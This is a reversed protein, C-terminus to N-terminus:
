QLKLSWTLARWNKIRKKFKWNTSTWKRRCCRYFKANIYINKLNCLGSVAVSNQVQQLEVDKQQLAATTNKIQQELASIKDVENRIELDVNKRLENNENVLTNCREGLENIELELQNKLNNFDNEVTELHLKWTEAIVDGRSICEEEWKKNLEEVTTELNLQYSKQSHEANEKLGTLELTQQEILSNLNDVKSKLAENETRLSEIESVDPQPSQKLSSALESNERKLKEVVEVYNAVEDQLKIIQSNDITNVDEFFSSASVTKQQNLQDYLAKKENELKRLNETLQHIENQLKASDPQSPNDFFSAASGFLLSESSKHQQVTANLRANESELRQLKENLIIIENQLELNATPPASNEFFSSANGFSLHENTTQNGLREILSKNENDLANLKENLDAIENKLAMVESQDTKPVDFFSAASQLMTTPKNQSLALELNQIQQNLSHNQAQLERNSQDMGDLKKKLDLVADADEVTREQLNNYDKQLKENLEEMYRIREELDAKEQEMIAITSSLTSQQQLEESAVDARSRLEVLERTLNEYNAEIHMFRTQLDSKLQMEEEYRRTVEGIEARLNNADEQLENRENILRNYEELPKSTEKLIELQQELDSNQKLLLSYEDVRISSEQSEKLSAELAKYQDLSVLSEKLRKIENELQIKQAVVELFEEESKVNERSVSLNKLKNEAEIRLNRQEELLAQLEENDLMLDRLSEKIEEVQQRSEEYKREAEQAKPEASESTTKPSADTTFGDNEWEYKELKHVAEQCQRQVNVLEIDQNEKIEILKENATTLTDVKKLISSKELKEKELENSIERLNKELQTIQSKLEEQITNDLNFFDDEKSTSASDKKSQCVQEYKVKFEKCKKILKGSKIQLQKIEELHKERELQFVRVQESLLEVQTQLVM